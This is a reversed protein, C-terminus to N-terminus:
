EESAWLDRDAARQEASANEVEQIEDARAEWSAASRELLRRGNETDTGAAQLRDDAARDRCGAVTDGAEKCAPAAIVPPPSKRRGTLAGAGRPLGNRSTGSTERRPPLQDAM